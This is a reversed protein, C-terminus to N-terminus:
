SVGDLSSLSSREGRSLTTCNIPYSYYLRPAALIGPLCLHYQNQHAKREPSPFMSKAWKGAMSRTRVSSSPAMGCLLFCSAFCDTNFTALYDKTERRVELLILKHLLVHRRYNCLVLLVLVVLSGVNFGQGWSELTVDNVTLSAKTPTEAPDRKLLPMALSAITPAMAALALLSDSRSLHLAVSYLGPSHTKVYRVLSM